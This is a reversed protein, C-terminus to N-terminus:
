TPCRRASRLRGGTRNRRQPLSRSPDGSGVPVLGRAGRWSRVYLDDGVRVVWITTYRDLSGDPQRAAIQLEDAACVDPEGGARAGGPMVVRLTLGQVDGVADAEDRGPVAADLLDAGAVDDVDFGALLVPVARGRVAEHGVDGDLFGVVVSLDHGPELVDGVLLVARPLPLRPSSTDM